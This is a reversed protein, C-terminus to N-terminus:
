WRLGVVIGIGSKRARTRPSAQSEAVNYERPAANAFSV